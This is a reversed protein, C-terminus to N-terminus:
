VVCYASVKEERCIRRYYNLFINKRISQHYAILYNAATKSIASTAPLFCHVTVV